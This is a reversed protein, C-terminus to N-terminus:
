DGGYNEYYYYGVESLFIRQPINSSTGAGSANWGVIAARMEGQSDGSARFTMGQKIYNFDGGRYPGIPAGGERVIRFFKGGNDGYFISDAKSYVVAREWVPLKDFGGRVESAMRTHAAEYKMVDNFDSMTLDVVGDAGPAKDM